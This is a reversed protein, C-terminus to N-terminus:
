RRAIRDDGSTDIGRAPPSSSKAPRHSAKEPSIYAM